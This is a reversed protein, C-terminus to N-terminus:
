SDQKGPQQQTQLDNLLSKIWERDEDPFPPCEAMRYRMWNYGGNRWALDVLPQLDLLVDTDSERLPTRITPLRRQLPLHYYEIANPRNARVVVVRYPQREEESVAEEPVSVVWAGRRILDIEVLNVGADLLQDQRARFQNRQRLMFKNSPSLFEIATIVRESAVEIIHVSRQTMPEDLQIIRPEAVALNRSDESRLVQESTSPVEVIATDPRRSYHSDSEGGKVELTPRVEIRARLDSPLQQQLQDRAYVALSTHVDGWRLELFPDMGPFPSPM